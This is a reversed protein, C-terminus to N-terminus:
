KQNEELRYLRETISHDMENKQLTRRMELYGRELDRDKGLVDRRLKVVARYVMAVAAGLVVLGASLMAFIYVDEADEISLPSLCLHRWGNSPDSIYGAPYSGSPCVPDAPGRENASFLYDIVSLGWNVLNM